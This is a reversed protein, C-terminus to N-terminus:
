EFISVYRHRRLGEGGDEEEFLKCTLGYLQIAKYEEKGGVINVEVCNYVIKGGKPHLFVM